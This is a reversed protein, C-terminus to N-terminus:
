ITRQNKPIYVLSMDFIDCPTKWCPTQRQYVCYKCAYDVRTFKFPVSINQSDTKVIINFKTNKM